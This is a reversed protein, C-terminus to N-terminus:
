TKENKRDGPGEESRRAYRLPTCGVEAKFAQIFRSAQDFGCLRATEGVSHGTELLEQGKRIRHSRLFRHPTTRLCAQFTRCCEGESVHAAAAIDALSVKEGYHAYIWSLMAQMREQRAPRQEQATPEDRRHTCFLQRIRVLAVSVDYARGAAGPARFLGEITRLQDLAEAQWPVSPRLVLEPWRAAHPLVDRQEMRSGPFFGLLRAPFDLSVYAGDPSLETVAHIRGGGIYLAEGATLEYAAAQVQVTARGATVLTLQLEEHWHYDRLGRGAPEMGAHSVRYLEVPFAADRYRNIEHLARSEM